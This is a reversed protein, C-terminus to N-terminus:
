ICETKSNLNFIKTGEASGPQSEDVLEAFCRHKKLAAALNKIVEQAEVAGTRSATGKASIKGPKIDVDDVDITVETRPPLAANFALLVDYATMEPIPTDRKGAATPDIRALVAEADLAQGFAAQSETAVRQTLVAEAKRLKYLSAYASAAGFAILALAAALLQTVKARLFSLDAKFALEGARLDFTPRGGGGEIAVGAALCAVAPDVGMSLLRPGLVALAEPESPRAVPLELEEALFSTLGRLRAGGGVLLVRQVTAGTKARCAALTQRLERALAQLEPRLCADIRAWAESTAPEAQSGVFGDQHKAHEAQEPTLRWTRAILDTLGKGGRSLTRLYDARGGVVVCVDTREHGIDIVALPPLDPGFREVAWPYAAPAAVLARPEIAVEHLRDLLRRVHDKQTACALVRMGSSPPAIRGGAPAAFAPEAAAAEAPRTALPEFAFVMDELDIPLIGELENGVAKELDPRRLSRFPFDLVHVFVRDGGLAAVTAEHGLGRERVIEGAVRAARVETPEDGPPVRREILDTLTAGRFGPTAIAVKVSYAGLDIGVIRSAM